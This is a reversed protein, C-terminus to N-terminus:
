PELDMSVGSDNFGRRAVPAAVKYDRSVTTRWGGNFTIDRREQMEKVVCDRLTGTSKNSAMCAEVTAGQWSLETADPKVASVAVGGIIGGLAAIGVFSGVIILVLTEM